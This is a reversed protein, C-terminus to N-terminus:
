KEALYQKYGKEKLRADKEKVGNKLEEQYAKLQRLLGEDSIALMKVALLGANAGGDIAVTATPIGSPM